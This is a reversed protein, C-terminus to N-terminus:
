FLITKDFALDPSNDLNSYDLHVKTSHGIKGPTITDIILDWSPLIPHMYCKRDLDHLACSRLFTQFDPPALIIQYAYDAGGGEQNIYPQSDFDQPPM